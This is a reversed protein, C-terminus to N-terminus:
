DTCPDLLADSDDNENSSPADFSSCLDVRQQQRQTSSTTSQLSEQLQASYSKAKARLAAISVSRISDEDVAPKRDHSSMCEASDLEDSCFDPSDKLTEAAELSKKHM